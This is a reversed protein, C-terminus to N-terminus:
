DYANHFENKVRIFVNQIADRVTSKQYFFFILPIIWGVYFFPIGFLFILWFWGSPKYQVDATLLFGTNNEQINIQTTDSRFFGLFPEIRKVTLLGENKSVFGSIKEFKDILTQTIESKNADTKITENLEFRMSRGYLLAKFLLLTPIVVVFLIVLHATSLALITM